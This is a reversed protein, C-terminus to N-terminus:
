GLLLGTVKGGNIITGDAGFSWSYFALIKKGMRNAERKAYLPIQTRKTITIVREYYWKFWLTDEEDMDVDNIVYKLEKSCQDRKIWRPNLPGSFHPKENRRYNIYKGYDNEYYAFYIEGINIGYLENPISLFFEFTKTENTFEVLTLHEM